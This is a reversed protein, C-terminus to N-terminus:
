MKEAAWRLQYDCTKSTPDGPRVPTIREVTRISVRASFGTDVFRGTISTTTTISGRPITLAATSFNGDPRVQADWPQGNVTMKLMSTGSPHQVEVRIAGERANMGPCTSSYLSERATYTGSADIPPSAGAPTYPKACALCLLACSLFRTTTMM